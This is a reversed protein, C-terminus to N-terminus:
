WSVCLRHAQYEPLDQLVLVQVRGEFGLQYLGHVISAIVVAAVFVAALKLVSGVLVRWFFLM